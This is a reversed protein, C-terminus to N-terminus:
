PLPVSDAAARINVADAELIVGASVAADLSESWAAIFADKTGYRDILAENSLPTTTGFLGCFGGGTQGLGSLVAVPVDVHPTRIGGKANGVEDLVFGELEDDAELVPQPFPEAGTRAWTDLAALAARVVYTHPGTNLPRECEIVGGYVGTPPELMSRFFALDVTGSGDDGDGIGLSYADAHATGAIEWSRFYDTDPQAARRYGLAAGVVDTEASLTLVPRILDTRIRAPDPGPVDSGPEAADPEPTALAVARSGRSHVLYADFVDQRPALANLYTTLRFASQSEGMAIVVDPTIGGLLEDANRRVAAGIQGYLDYSYDDGPHVLTGYRDANATKLALFAGLPNGGGEIGVRQASVGVWVAGTRQVHTAAYTFIPGNDFGATVNLWEVFVTGSANAPDAPRRVVVRTRYPASSEPEVTWDGDASLPEQSTFATSVGDIFFEEEVYGFAAGDFPTAGLVVDGTDVAPSVTVEDVDALTAPPTTTPASGSDPPATDPATSTTDVETSSPASSTSVDVEGGSACGGLLIGGTLGAAFVRRRLRRRARRAAEDAHQQAKRVKRSARAM